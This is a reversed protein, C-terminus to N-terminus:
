TKLSQTYPFTELRRTAQEIRAIIRRAAEPNDRAIYNRISEL